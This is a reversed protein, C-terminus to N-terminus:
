NDESRPRERELKKLTRDGRVSEWIAVVAVYCIVCLSLVVTFDERHEGRYAAGSRQTLLKAAARAPVPTDDPERLLNQGLRPFL